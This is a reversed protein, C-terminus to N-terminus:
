FSVRSNLPFPSSQGGRVAGRPAAMVGLAAKWTDVETKLARLTKPLDKALFVQRAIRFEGLMKEEMGSDTTMALLINRIIEYETNYRVFQKMTYSPKGDVIHESDEGVIEQGLLSSQWIQFNLLDDHFNAFMDPFDSRLIKVTSYLPNYRSTFSFKKTEGNLSLQITYRQNEYLRKESGYKQISM